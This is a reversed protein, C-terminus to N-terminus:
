ANLWHLGWIAALGAVLGLGGCLLTLRLAASLHREDIAAPWYPEGIYLENVRVGNRYIPGVLRIRLAGAYAGESWGSNPSPLLSHYRLASRVADLPSFRLLAAAVAIVAVSLRAPLWNVLDDSRAGAWGFRRYRANNYGVMSDLTSITKVTVAAPLGGLCLAWLPTLVGDIVSEALSEITARVVAPRDMRDTDRGVLWGVWRRAKELDPLSRQVRRAHDVLDRLSLVHWAIFVDWCWAALPHWSLLAVHVGAWASVATVVMAMWHLVGGCYGDLGAGRLLREYLTSLDGLVRIPHWRYRPDGFALDLFFATLVVSFPNEILENLGAFM